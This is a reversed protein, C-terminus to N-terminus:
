LPEDLYSYFFLNQEWCTKMFPIFKLVDRYHKLLSKCSTHLENMNKVWFIWTSSEPKCLASSLTPSVCQTVSWGKVWILCIFILYKRQDESFTFIYILKILFYLQKAMCAFMIKVDGRPWLHVVSTHVITEKSKPWLKECM